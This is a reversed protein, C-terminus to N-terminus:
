ELNEVQEKIKELEAKIAVAGASIGADNGKSAATNAERGMEQVMFELRRGIPGPAGLVKRFEAAHAKLRQM